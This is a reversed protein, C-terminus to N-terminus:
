SHQEGAGRPSRNFVMVKGAERFGVLERHVGAARVDELMDDIIEEQYVREDDRLPEDSEVILNQGFHARILGVLLSLEERSVTAIDRTLEIQTFNAHATGRVGIYGIERASVQKYAELHAIALHRFAAIEEPTCARSLMIHFSLRGEGAHVKVSGIEPYRVLLSVLLSAQHSIGEEGRAASSGLTSL